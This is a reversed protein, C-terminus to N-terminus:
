LRSGDPRRAGNGYGSLHSNNAGRICMLLYSSTDGQTETAKGDFEYQAMNEFVTMQFPQHNYRQSQGMDGKGKDGNFPNLTDLMKDGYLRPDTLAMQNDGQHHGGTLYPQMAWWWSFRNDVWTNGFQPDYWNEGGTKWWALAENMWHTYLPIKAPLAKAVYAIISILPNGPADWNLQDLQWGVCAHDIAGAGLMQDIIPQLIPAWYAADANPTKLAEGGLFWEDAYLGISQAKKSLQIHSAVTGGYYLSHGISRQLHTYGYGAYTDLYKEQWAPPYNDLLCAMVCDPNAENAGPVWPAGPLHLGCFNGRYFYLDPIPPPHFGLETPYNVPQPYPGLPPRIIPPPPTPGGRGNLALIAAASM